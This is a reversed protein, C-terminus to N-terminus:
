VSSQLFPLVRRAHRYIMAVRNAITEIDWGLCIHDAVFHVIEHDLSEIMRDLKDYAIRIITHGDDDTTCDGCVRYNKRSYITHVLEVTCFRNFRYVRKM